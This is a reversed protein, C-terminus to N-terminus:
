GSAWDLDGRRVGLRRSRLSARRQEVLLFEERAKNELDATGQDWGCLARSDPEKRIQGSLDAGLRSGPPQQSLKSETISGTGRQGRVLPLRCTRM